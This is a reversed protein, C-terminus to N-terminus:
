KHFKLNSFENIDIVFIPYKSELFKHFCEKLNITLGPAEKTPLSEGASSNKIENYQHEYNHFVFSFFGQNQKLKARAENEMSTKSVRNKNFVKAQRNLTM